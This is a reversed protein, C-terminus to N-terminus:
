VALRSKCLWRGILRFHRKGQLKYYGWHYKLRSFLLRLLSTATHYPELKSLGAQFLRSILDWIFAWIICVRYRLSLLSCNKWDLRMDGRQRWCMVIFFFVIMLFVHYVESFDMSKVLLRLVVLWRVSRLCNGRSRDVLSSFIVELEYSFFLYSGDSTLWSQLRCKSWLTHPCPEYGADDLAGM